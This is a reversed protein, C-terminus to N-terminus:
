FFCLFKGVFNPQEIENTCNKPPFYDFFNCWNAYHLDCYHFLVALYKGQSIRSERLFLFRMLCTGKKRAHQPLKPREETKDLNLKAM